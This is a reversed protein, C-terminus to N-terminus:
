FRNPSRKKKKNSNQIYMSSKMWKLMRAKAYVNTMALGDGVSEPQGEPVTLGHARMTKRASLGFTM